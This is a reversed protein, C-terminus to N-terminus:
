PTAKAYYCSVESGAATGAAITLTTGVLTVGTRLRNGFTETSLKYKVFVANNLDWQANHEKTSDVMGLPTFSLTFATGGGAWKDLVMECGALLYFPAYESSFLVDQENDELGINSSIPNLICEQHVISFIHTGDELKCIRELHFLPYGPFNHPVAVYGGVTYTQGQLAALLEDVAGAVLRITGGGEGGYRKLSAGSGGGQHIRKIEKYKMAPVTISQVDSIDVPVIPALVSALDLVYRNKGFEGILENDIDPKNLVDAFGM